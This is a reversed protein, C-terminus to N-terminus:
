AQYLLTEWAQFFKFVSFNFGFKEKESWFMYHGRNQVGTVARNQKKAIVKADIKSSLSLLNLVTESNVFFKLNCFVNDRRIM